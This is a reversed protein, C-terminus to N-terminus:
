LKGMPVAVNNLNEDLASGKDQQQPDFQLLPGHERSTNMSTPQDGIVNVSDSSEEHRSVGDNILRPVAHSRDFRKEQTDTLNILYQM